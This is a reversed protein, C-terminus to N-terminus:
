RTVLDQIESYDDSSHKVLDLFEEYRLNKQVDQELEGCLQESEELKDKLLAIEEEKASIQTQEEQASHSAPYPIRSRQISAQLCPFMPISIPIRFKLKLRSTADNPEQHRFRGGM